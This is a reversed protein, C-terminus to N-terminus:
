YYHILLIVGILAKLPQHYASWIYKLGFKKINYKHLAETLRMNRLTCVIYIDFFYDMYQLSIWGIQCM